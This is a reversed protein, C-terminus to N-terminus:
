NKENNKKKKTKIIIIKTNGLMEEATKVIPANSDLSWQRDPFAKILKNTFALVKETLDITEIIEQM